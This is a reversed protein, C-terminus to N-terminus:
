PKVSSRIKQVFWKASMTVEQPAELPSGGNAAQMKFDQVKGEAVYTSGNETITIVCNKDRDVRMVFVESM